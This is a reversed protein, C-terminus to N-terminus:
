IRVEFRLARFQRRSKAAPRPKGEAMRELAVCAAIWDNLEAETLSPLPKAFTLGILQRLLARPSRTLVNAAMSSIMGGIAEAGVAVTRGSERDNGPGGTSGVKGDVSSQVYLM